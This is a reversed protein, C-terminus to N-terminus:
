RWDKRDRSRGSITVPPTVVSSDPRIWLSVHAPQVTERVVAVLDTALDDLDVEDRLRANFAAVTQEADYRRRYFRRDVLAQIRRRAPRFLAAVALTSGAIALDNGRTLGSFIQQLGLVIGFYLGALLASVALYVLGRNIIRDIEYLRYRFIAIGISVPFLAVGLLLLSETANVGVPAFLAVLWLAVLLAAAAAIWKLQEREEGGARRFRLVISLASALVAILLLVWGVNALTEFAGHEPGRGFPNSVTSFPDQDFRGPDFATGVVLLTGALVVLGVVPRWRRSLLRGHPFLLLVLCMAGPVVGTGISENAWAATSAGPLSGPELLVGRVGYEATFGVVANAVGVALLLWGIVNGARRSAILAGVTPYALFALSLSVRVFRNTEEGPVPGNAVAVAFAGLVLLVCLSWLSWALRTM